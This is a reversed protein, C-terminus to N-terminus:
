KLYIPMIVGKANTPVYSRDTPSPSVGIPSNSDKIVLKVWEHGMSLALDLLMKANLAIVTFGKDKEDYDPMVQRWNPYRSEGALGERGMVMGSSPIEAKGNLRIECEDMVASKRAAALAEKSVYGSEDDDQVEVPVVSMIWGNTAVMVPNNKDSVDLYPECIASRTKDKSVAKEIAIKKHIKM